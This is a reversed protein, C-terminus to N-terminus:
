KRSNIDPGGHRDALPGSRRVSEYGTRFATRLTERSTEESSLALVAAWYDYEGAGVMAHEFDMVCTVTKWEIGVSDPLYNGHLLAPKGAGPL